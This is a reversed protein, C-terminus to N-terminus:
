PLLLQHEQDVVVVHHQTHQHYLCQKERGGWGSLKAEGVARNAGQPCVHHQNQEM